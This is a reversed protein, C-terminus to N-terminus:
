REKNGLYGVMSARRDIRSWLFLTRGLQINERWLEPICVM